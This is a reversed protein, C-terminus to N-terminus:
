RVLLWLLRAPSPGRNHWELPTESTLYILEGARMVLSEKATKLGVEGSILFGMEEGKHRFFHASLRGFPHIEVLYPQLRTDMDLPILRWASVVEPSVGELNTEEAELPSYVLRRYSPTEEQFLVGVNISLVEAIKLLAPLSPFILNSEVQSITSPTVGVLRAMETQSIGKRTRWAKIRQGLDIGGSKKEGEFSIGQKKAWYPYPRHFHDTERKEAKLITLYTTGRKIALDVVVQAVQNIQARLRPSHAKKEMIWYAVTNLEYLRPCARSYFKLVQDEGGWLEAMGTLSEFVLRVDGKMAAHLDYLIHEVEEMARPKEVRVLRAADKPDLEEYFKLFVSSGAGKGFTFGDLVTLHPYEWLTGLQTKLNRPSRDFTLYLISKEQEQSVRLFHQCFVSALSGADDYWIVNDGILLGGLLEDLFPVGTSVRIMDEM